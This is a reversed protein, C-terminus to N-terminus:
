LFYYLISFITSFASTSLVCVFVSHTICKYLTHLVYPQYVKNADKRRVARLSALFTNWGDTEDPARDPAPQLGSSTSEIDVHAPGKKKAVEGEDLLM